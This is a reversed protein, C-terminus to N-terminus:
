KVSEMGSGEWFNLSHDESRSTEVRVLYKKGIKIQNNREREREKRTQERKREKKGTDRRWVWSKGM